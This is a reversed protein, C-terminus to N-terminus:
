AQLCQLSACCGSASFLATHPLTVGEVFGEAVGHDTSSLCWIEQHVTSSKSAPSSLTSSSSLRLGAQSHSVEHDTKM